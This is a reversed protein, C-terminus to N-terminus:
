TKFSLFFIIIQFNFYLFGFIKWKSQGNSNDAVYFYSTSNVLVEVVDTLMSLSFNGINSINLKQTTNHNFVLEANYIPSETKKVFMLNGNKYTFDYILAKFLVCENTAKNLSISLCGKEQNCLALCNMFGHRTQYKTHYFHSNSPAKDEHKQYFYESQNSRQIFLVSILTIKLFNMKIFLFLCIKKQM